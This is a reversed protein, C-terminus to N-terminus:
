NNLKSRTQELLVEIKTDDIYYMGIQYSIFIVILFHFKYM